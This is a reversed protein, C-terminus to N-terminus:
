WLMPHLLGHGLLLPTIVAVGADGLMVVNRKGPFSLKNLGDWQIFAINTRKGECRSAFVKLGKSGFYVKNGVIFIVM